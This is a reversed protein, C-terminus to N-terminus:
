LQRGARSRPTKLYYWIGSLFGTIETPLTRDRETGSRLLWKVGRGLYWSPLTLLIRRLNGLNGTREFQVLLAAAHGRMYAFIQREFGDLDRRHVHFAVSTPEYRCTHGRSLIRHWYESDGSCGAAGVDLREDFYGVLAFCERRIAMSAGAGIEWAPCGRTRDGSFFETGYDIRRYGRAFSWFREFQWQADTALEAPLVLGAVAMVDPRDFSAVLRELWRPHLLVDDDTYAVIDGAARRAGTNRAIDLGPRPELVYDVGAAEAAIRTQGDRSANDVVIIREPRLSQHKLSQLCNALEAPRDRTCIVVTARPRSADRPPGATALRRVSEVAVQDVRSDAFQAADIPHDTRVELFGQGVPLGDSWLVVMWPGPALENVLSADALDVHCVGRAVPGLDSRQMSPRPVTKESFNGSDSLHPNAM